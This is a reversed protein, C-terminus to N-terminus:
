PPPISHSATRQLRAGDASWLGYYRFNKMENQTYVSKKDVKERKIADYLVRNLLTSFSCFPHFIIIVYNADHRSGIFM